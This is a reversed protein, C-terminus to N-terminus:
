VARPVEAVLMACGPDLLITLLLCTSSTVLALHMQLRVSHVRAASQAVSCLVALM